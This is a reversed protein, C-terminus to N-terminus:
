QLSEVALDFGVCELVPLAPYKRFRRDTLALECLYFTSGNMNEVRRVNVCVSCLGVAPEFRPGVESSEM